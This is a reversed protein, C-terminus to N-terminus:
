QWTLSIVVWNFIGGLGTWSIKGISFMILNEKKPQEKIVTFKNLLDKIAEIKSFEIFTDDSMKRAGNMTQSTKVHKM